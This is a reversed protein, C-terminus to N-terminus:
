RKDISKELISKLQELNPRAPDWGCFKELFKGVIGGTPEYSVSYTLQTGDEVPELVFTMFADPELSRRTPPRKASYTIKENELSETVEFDFEGYGREEIDLRASVGVKFKDEPTNVESTYEFSKLDKGKEENWEKFRDLALIEWVKEPPAKIEISKKIGL